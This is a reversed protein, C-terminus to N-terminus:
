KKTLIRNVTKQFAAYGHLLVGLQDFDESSSGSRLLQKIEQMKTEVMKLQERAKEPNKRIEQELDFEFPAKKEKELGYM